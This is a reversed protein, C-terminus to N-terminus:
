LPDIGIDMCRHMWEAIADTTNLQLHVIDQRLQVLKAAVELAEESQDLQVGANWIPACIVHRLYDCLLRIQDETPAAREGLRHSWFAQVAAPLVGSVDDQWRLPFGGPRYGPMRTTVPISERPGIYQTQM